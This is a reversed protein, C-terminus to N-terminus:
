KARTYKMEMMQMEKGDPGNMYMTFVMSDKDKIETTSRFKMPKGDPGPGEMAESFTKGAKDWEGKVNFIGPSMSDVWVGTYQKKSPDYGTVGHGQFKMGALEGDFNTVLFYGGLDLKASMKGKSETPAQGPPSCHITANWEGSMQKLMEHEPGPKPFDQAFLGGVLLLTLALSLMRSINQM